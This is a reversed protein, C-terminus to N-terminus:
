PMPLPPNPSRNNRTAPRTPTAARAAPHASLEGWASRRAGVVV